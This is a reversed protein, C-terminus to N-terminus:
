QRVLGITPLKEIQRQVFHLAEFLRDLERRAEAADELSLLGLPQAINQQLEDLLRKIEREQLHQTEPNASYSFDLLTARSEAVESRLNAYVRKAYEADDSRVFRFEDQALSEWIAQVQNFAHSWATQDRAELAAHADEQLHELRTRWQEIFMGLKAGGDARYVVRRIADMLTVYRSYGPTLDQDRNHYEELAEELRGVLVQLKDPDTRATERIGAVLLDTRERFYSAENGWLARAIDDVRELLEEIQPWSKLERAPPPEIQAWFTQGLIEGNAVMTMAEDVSLNLEVPTGVETDEPVALHITRIPFRNQFLRLLVAGSHDTTFFRYHGQAPLSTGNRLLVHRQARGDRVIQLTIDKALVTPNSLASGTSRLRESADVRTLTVAYRAIPDGERDCFELSLDHRGIEHLAVHEIVFFMAGDADAEEPRALAVIEGAPDLLVVSTVDDVHPVDHVRGAIRTTDSKTTLASTLTLQAENDADVLTLGAVNAAHIAAGLAVCTDPEDLLPEKAKSRGEGCFAAAVRERVLPVRTSGGVLLVHDVAALTVGAAEDAKALARECAEITDTVLQSILGEFTDRALEMDISVSNGDKDEFLNRRGVYQVATDSLSEKVERALQTLLAFRARDHDDHLVDLDLSWGREVLQHRFYEALKRDFDDGGLYNDGDIGLVQYEGMLCRIVSVDFTGGGLDYVLFTGDGIGHKWAYYMAAGTPEQLLGIVDLGALEGARRTAEIQPADFYAPVTLVAQTLEFDDPEAQGE